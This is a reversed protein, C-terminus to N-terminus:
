RTWIVTFVLGVLIVGLALLGMPAASGPSKIVLGVLHITIGAM